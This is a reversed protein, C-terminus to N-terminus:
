KSANLVPEHLYSIARKVVWFNNKREWITIFKAKEVKKGNVYFEHEGIQVAGYNGLVNASSSVLKRTVSIPKSCKDKLSNIEKEFSTSLGTRDDYFEIDQSIIKKFLAIDCKNFAVNFLLSDMKM